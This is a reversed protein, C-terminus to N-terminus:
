QNCSGTDKSWMDTDLASLTWYGGTVDLLTARTLTMWKNFKKKIKMDESRTDPNIKNLSSFVTM